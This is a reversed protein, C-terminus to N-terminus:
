KWTPLSFKLTVRQQLRQNKLSHAGSMKLRIRGLWLELKVSKSGTQPDLSSQHIQEGGHNQAMTLIKNREKRWTTLM